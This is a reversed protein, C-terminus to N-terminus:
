EMVLLTAARTGIYLHQCSAPICYTQPTLLYFIHANSRIDPGTPPRLWLYVCLVTSVHLMICAYLTAYAYPVRYPNAVHYVCVCVAHFLYLVCVVCYIGVAHVCYCYQCAVCVCFLIFMVARTGFMICVQYVCLVIYIYNPVCGYHYLCVLCM